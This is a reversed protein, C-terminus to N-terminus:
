GRPGRRLASAAVPSDRRGGVRARGNGDLAAPQAPRHRARRRRPRRLLAPRAPASAPPAALRFGVRDRRHHRRFTRGPRRRVRGVCCHGARLCRPRAVVTPGLRRAALHRTPHRASQAPRDRDRRRRAALPHRPPDPHPRRGRVGV